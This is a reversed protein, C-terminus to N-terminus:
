SARNNLLSEIAHGALMFGFLNPMWSVTGNTARPRAGEAPARHPLAGRAPESSFVVPHDLSGGLKRLHGRLARALGCTHTDRLRALRVLAPNTRGGAGLSTAAALGLRQCALILHAKCVVSDICDLTFDPQIERLMSEANEPHLFTDRAEIQISPDIALVRAAAAEVKPRGIDAQLTVIQRNLNSAAIRDHDILTIRGIGARACAELAAGGVGGAGVILMHAARLRALGEEGILIRTREHIDQM